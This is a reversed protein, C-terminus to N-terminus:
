PTFHSQIKNVETDPHPSRSLITKSTWLIYGSNKKLIKTNYCVQIGYM